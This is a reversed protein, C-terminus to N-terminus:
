IGLWHEPKDPNACLHVFSKYIKIRTFGARIAGYVVRFRHYTTPTSIDAAWGLTHSSTDVGGVAANHKPCRCGSNVSFAVNAYGRAADLMSLFKSQMNNLGCGCKCAFEDETFYKM